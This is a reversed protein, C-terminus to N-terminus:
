NDSEKDYPMERDLEVRTINDGLENNAKNIIGQRAAFFIDDDSAHRTVIARTTITATVLLAKKNPFTQERRISARGEEYREDDPEIEESIVPSYNDGCTPCDDDCECDWYSEWENPCEVCEYKNLFVPDFVDLDIIRGFENTAPISGKERYIDGDAMHKRSNFVEGTPLTLIIDNVQEMYTSDLAFHFGNPSEFYALDCARDDKLEKFGDHESLVVHTSAEAKKQAETLMETLRALEPAEDSYDADIDFLGEPDLESVYKATEKLFKVFRERPSYQDADLIAQIESLRDIIRIEREIDETDGTFLSCFQDQPYFEFYYTKGEEIKTATENLIFQSDGNLYDPFSIVPNNNPMNVTSGHWIGKQITNM